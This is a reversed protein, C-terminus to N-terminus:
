ALEGPYANSEQDLLTNIKLTEEFLRNRLNLQECQYSRQELLNSHFVDFGKGFYSFGNIAFM